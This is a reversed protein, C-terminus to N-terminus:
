AMQKRCAKYSEGGLKRCYQRRKHKASMKRTFHKFKKRMEKQTYGPAIKKMTIM